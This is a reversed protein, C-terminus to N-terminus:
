REKQGEFYYQYYNNYHADDEGAVPTWDNLVAGIVPIGDDFLRMRSAMASDRDTSGARLVLIVGDSCRGVLRAESFQLMPPTDILVTDFKEALHELLKAMQPSHFIAGHLTESVGAGRLRLSGSSLLSVNPIQTAQVMEDLGAWSEEPSPEIVLDSFGKTNEIGLVEHLRPRRLDADVLLVRRGTEAIAGALNSIMTTKGDGPRPSTVVIVKPTKGRGNMTLSALVLRFSEALLSPRKQWTTLALAQSDPLGAAKVGLPGLRKRWGVGNAYSSELLGSPIVGLEPVNLMSSVQGPKSVTREAILKKARDRAVLFGLILTIGWGLGQLVLTPLSPKSPYGSAIATDIIRVNTTPVASAIGAQNSQYLLVNLTNRLTEVERKLTGHETAKDTQSVIVGAQGSFAAALMKEQKLAAEYDAKIRQVMSIRERQMANEVEAIQVDLRKVKPHEPTYTMTLVMRERRLGGLTNQNAQLNPDQLIDGLTELPATRVADYRAQKSIREAQIGALDSKLRSLKSAALTEQDGIFTSGSKRVFDQLRSEAQELRVKTEEIQGALWQTTKQSNTSRIQLNQSLYEAALTNLFSAAIEPNTSECTVAIIRTQPVIRATLTGNAMALAAKMSKLPDQSDPNFWARLKALNGGQPPLVPTTERELREMVPGRLSGSEIIRLQTQLNLATASYNGTGAQPDVVNMGMFSENLGMMEITTASRYVLPQTLYFVLGCGGGFLTISLVWWKNRWMLKAYRLIQNEEAPGFGQGM